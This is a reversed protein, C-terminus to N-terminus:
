ACSEADVYATERIQWVPKGARDKENLTVFEYQLRVLRPDINRPTGLAFPSLDCAASEPAPSQPPSTITVDETLNATIARLCDGASDLIVWPHTRFTPQTYQQGPVLRQYLQLAGTYDVWYVQVTRNTQNAFRLQVPEEGSSSRLSTRSDCGTTAWGYQPLVSVYTAWSALLIFANGIRGIKRPWLLTSFM